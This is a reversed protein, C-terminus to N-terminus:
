KLTSIEIKDRDIVVAFGGLSSNILCFYNTALPVEVGFSQANVL